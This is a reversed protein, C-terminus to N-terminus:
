NKVNTPRYKHLIVYMSSIFSFLLASKWGINHDFGLNIATKICWANFFTYILYLIFGATMHVMM